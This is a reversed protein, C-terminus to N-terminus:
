GAGVLLRSENWPLLTSRPRCTLAGPPLPRAIRFIKVRCPASGLSRAAIYPLSAPAKVSGGERRRSSQRRNGSALIVAVYRADALAREASPVGERDERMVRAVKGHNNSSGGPDSEPDLTRAFREQALALRAEAAAVDGRRGLTADYVSQARGDDIMTELDIKRTTSGEPTDYTVFLECGAPRFKWTWQWGGALFLKEGQYEIGSRLYTKGM